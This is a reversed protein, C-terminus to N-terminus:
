EPADPTGALSTRYVVSEMCADLVGQVHGFDAERDARVNLRLRSPGLKGAVKSQERELGATELALMEILGPYAGDANPAYAQGRVKVLGGELVNVQLARDEALHVPTPEHARDAYPLSLEEVELNTLESVIMFFIILNFVIDIMPTLNPKPEPETTFRTSRQM